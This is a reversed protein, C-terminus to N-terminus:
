RGQFLHFTSERLMPAAELLAASPDGYCEAEMGGGLEALRSLFEAIGPAHSLVADSDIYTERVVCVAEDPSLFWDYELVGTEGLTVAMMEAAIKKFEDLDSSEINPFRATLHIKEM